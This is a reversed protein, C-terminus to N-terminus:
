NEMTIRPKKICPIFSVDGLLSSKGPKKTNKEKVDLYSM